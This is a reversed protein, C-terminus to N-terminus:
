SVLYVVAMIQKTICQLWTLSPLLVRTAFRVHKRFDLMYDIGTRAFIVVMGLCRVRPSMPGRVGLKLTSLM